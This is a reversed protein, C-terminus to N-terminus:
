ERIKFVSRIDDMCIDHAQHDVYLRANVHRQFFNLPTNKSYRMAKLFAKFKSRTIWDLSFLVCAAKIEGYFIGEQWVQEEKANAYAIPTNLSAITALAILGKQM